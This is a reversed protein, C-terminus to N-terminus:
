GQCRQRYDEFGVMNIASTRTHNLSDQVATQEPIMSKMESENWQKVILDLRTPKLSVAKRNGQAAKVVMQRVSEYSPAQTLDAVERGACFAAEYPKLDSIPKQAIESYNGYLWWMVNVEERDNRAQNELQNLASKLVQGLTKWMAPLETPATGKLASLDLKENM